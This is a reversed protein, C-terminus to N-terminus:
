ERPSPPPGRTSAAALSLVVVGDALFTHLVRSCVQPVVAGLVCQCEKRPISVAYLCTLFLNRATLRIADSGSLETPTTAEGRRSCEAVTKCRARALAGAACRWRRMQGMVVVLVLANGPGTTRPAGCRCGFWEELLSKARELEWLTADAGDGCGASTCRM